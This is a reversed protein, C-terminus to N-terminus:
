SQSQLGLETTQKTSPKLTTTPAVAQPNVKTSKSGPEVPLHWVVGGPSIM